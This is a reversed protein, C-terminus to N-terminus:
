RSLMTLLLLGHGFDFGGQYCMTNHEDVIVTDTVHVLMCLTKQDVVSPREANPDLEAAREGATLFLIIALTRLMM